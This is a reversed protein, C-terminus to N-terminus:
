PSSTQAPRDQRTADADGTLYRRTTRQGSHGVNRQIADLGIGQAHAAMVYRRRLTNGSVTQELSAADAIQKVIYDLGFRSLRERPQGRRASLLLPGERRSGLYSRLAATTGAHLVLSPSGRRAIDLTMHPPRGHLDAADARIVEGVKLGDLMLLRILAGARKSISDAARVLANAEADSLVDATSAVELTPRQIDAGSTLAPELGQAAAYGTFSRIASLRRAITAPSAGALECATRYRALDAADITLLNLAEGDACWAAVHRLDTRYAAQTNASRCTQLFGGVALTVASSHEPSRPAMACM